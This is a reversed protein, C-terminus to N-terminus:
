KRETLVVLTTSLMFIPLMTDSHNASTGGLVVGNSKRIERSSICTDLCPAGLLWRQRDADLFVALCYM